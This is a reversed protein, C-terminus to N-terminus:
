VWWSSIRITLRIELWRHSIRTGTHARSHTHRSPTIDLHSTGQSTLTHDAAWVCVSCCVAGKNVCVCCCVAVENVCVSCCVAGKNMCVCCRLVRINRLDLDWSYIYMYIYLRVYKRECRGRYLRVFIYVYIYWTECVEDWMQRQSTERIYMCIYIFDSM